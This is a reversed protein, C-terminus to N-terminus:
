NPLTRLADAYNGASASDGRQIALQEGERWVRRADAARGTKSYLQGLALLVRLDPPKLAYAAELVQVAEATRGQDTLIVSLVGYIEPAEPVIAIGQQCTQEAAAVAGSRALKLASTGSWTGRLERASPFGPYQEVCPRSIGYADDLNGAEIELRTLSMIAAPFM